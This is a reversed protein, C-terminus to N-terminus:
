RTECAGLDALEELAGRIRALVFQADGLSFVMPPKIKIVNHDPGDTSLLAGRERVRQVVADALDAAPILEGPGAGRRVFEAGLFLGRGRVDGIVPFREAIERLGELLARGVTRANERLGGTEIADLVAMGARCSVPNGGFTNFYEMGNDFAGAVQATTVVAAVPHGNGMPKGLTVIDPVVGHEEFAWWNDGVRGFGTQVEDAICLAGARRVFSYARELYGAPLPVQGGCGLFSEHIFAAPGPDADRALNGLASRVGEAYPGATESDPGRHIGRYSDPRPAVRVWQPRGGGGAGDFKYPSVGIATGTNGHYAGDLVVVGGRGTATRALRLALETAESGSCVFYCVSLPDPFLALLRESYELISEHLYRTNTNLVAMQSAVAAAVGPHAHGVHSVNNVCDLFPQGDPDYLWSGRGRVLHLPKRYSLSLSPGLRAARDRIMSQRPRKPPAEVARAAGEGVTPKLLPAPNPSFGLWVDRQRPAAVGPFTGEHGLLDTMVQFHLHPPWGGNGPPAGISGIRDGAAVEQGESITPERGRNPSLHGYLTWFTVSEPNEGPPPAVPRGGRVTHELIVTPGYDLPGANVSVSAVQGPLPAMVPTGPPVFLDAGLHLTRRDSRDDGPESYADGAYWLRAENWRGVGVPGGAALQVSRPDDPRFDPGYDGTSVSLDVSVGLGSDPPLVSAAHAAARRIAAHIRGGGPQPEHGLAHRLRARALAGPVSALAALLDWAPRRSSQLHPSDPELARRIGSITLSLALRLRILAHLVDAEVESVPCEGGHGRAVDCFAGVPDASGMGAYACAVALEAIRPSWTWDGFDLLGTVRPTWDPPEALLHINAPNADNHILGPSLRDAVPEVHERYGQLVGLLLRQREASHAVPEAAGAATTSAEPLHNAVLDAATRLDWVLTREEAAAPAAVSELRRSVWGTLRGIEERVLPRRLQLASISRGPVPAVLRALYDQGGVSGTVICEGNKARQPFPFSFRGDEPGGGRLANLIAQEAELDARREALHSIKLYGAASADQGARQGQQLIAFVRDRDSPREVATGRVAWHRLALEAAEAPSIEPRARAGELTLDFPMQRWPSVGPDRSPMLTTHRRNPPNPRVAQM